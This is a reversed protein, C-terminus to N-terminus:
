KNRSEIRQKITWRLKLALIFLRKGATTKSLFITLDLFSREKIYKCGSLAKKFLHVIRMFAIRDSCDICKRCFNWMYFQAERGSDGATFHSAIDEYVVCWNHTKVEMSTGTSISDSRRYYYYTVDPITYLHSLYKVVYFTWLTDEFLVGERFYLQHQHLFDKKILKNWAAVMRKSFHYDRVAELSTFDNEQQRLWQCSHIISGDESKHLPTGKVIEITTDNLVPRILKEICDPTVEDDGDLFFLYDGTAVDIGTNRAASLGRNHQHHLIHFKVSGTYTEILQECRIISDDQAADDVIICEINGYTQKIVSTVCREIYAAVGYVPIIISVKLDFNLLSLSEAM